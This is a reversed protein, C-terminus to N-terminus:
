RSRQYYFSMQALEIQRSNIAISGDIETYLECREKYSKYILVRM